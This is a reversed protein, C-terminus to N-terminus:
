DICLTVERGDAQLVPNCGIMPTIPACTRSRALCETECDTERRCSKGADRTQRFCSYAITDGVRGWTGGTAACDLAQPSIPISPVEPLTATAQAATPQVAPPATPDSVAGIAAPKAEPVAPLGTKPAADGAAPADLATVAVAGVTIPNAVAAAGAQRGPLALQCAALLPLALTLALILRPAPM